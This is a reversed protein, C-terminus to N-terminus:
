LPELREGGESADDVLWVVPTTEQGASVMFITGQQAGFDVVEISVGAGDADAPGFPDSPVASVTQAGPLREVTVLESQSSTPGGLVGVIAILVGAAAAGAVAIGWERGRPHRKPRAADADLAEVVRDALCDARHGDQVAYLRLADGVQDWQLALARADEDQLLAAAEDSSLEGDYARMLRLHDIRTM